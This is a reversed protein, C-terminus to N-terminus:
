FGPRPQNLPGAARMNPKFNYGQAVKPTQSRLRKQITRQFIASSAEPTKVLGLDVETVKEGLNQNPLTAVDMKADTKKNKKRQSIRMGGSARQAPFAQKTAVRQGGFAMDEAMQAATM